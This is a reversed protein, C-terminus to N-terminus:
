HAEKVCTMPTSDWPMSLQPCKPPKSPPTATEHSSPGTQFYSAKELSPLLPTKTSLAGILCRVSLFLFGLFRVQSTSKATSLVTAETVEYILFRNKLLVGSNNNNINIYM